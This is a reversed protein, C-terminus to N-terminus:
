ADLGENIFFSLTLDTVDNKLGLEVLFFTEASAMILGRQGWLIYSCVRATRRM